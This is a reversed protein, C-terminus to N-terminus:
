AAASELRRARRPPVILFEREARGYASDNLYAFVQDAAAVITYIAPDALHPLRSAFWAARDRDDTWSVGGIRRRRGTGAVGRYLTFPGPGPLPDGCGRLRRRDAVTFMYALINTSWHSYNLRCGSWACLLAPEYLGRERLADLNNFVIALWYQNGRAAYGLFGEVDGANLAAVAQPRLAPSILEVNLPAIM